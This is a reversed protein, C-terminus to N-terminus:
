PEQEDPAPSQTDEASIIKVVEQGPRVYEYGQPAQNNVQVAVNVGPKGREGRFFEVMRAKVTDTSGDDLLERAVELARAKHTAELAEVEQIYEDKMQIYLAAVHPQKIAKFLSSQAM